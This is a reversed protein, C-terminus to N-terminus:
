LGAFEVFNGGCNLVKSGDREKGSLVVGRSDCGNNSTLYSVMAAHLSM